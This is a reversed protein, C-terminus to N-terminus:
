LDKAFRKWSMVPLSTLGSSDTQPNELEMREYWYLGVDLREVDRRGSDTSTDARCVCWSSDRDRVSVQAVDKAQATARKKKHIGSERANRGPGAMSSSEKIRGASMRTQPRGGAPEQVRPYADDLGVQDGQKTCGPVQQMSEPLRHKTTM